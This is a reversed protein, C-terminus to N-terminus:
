LQPLFAIPTAETSQCTSCRPSGRSRERATCPAQSTKGHELALCPAQSIKTKGSPTGPYEQGMRFTHLEMRRYEELLIWVEPRSHPEPCHGMRAALGLGSGWANKLTTLPITNLAVVEKLFSDDWDIDKRALFIELVRNLHEEMIDGAQNGDPEGSPNVLWNRLFTEHLQPGSELELSTTM